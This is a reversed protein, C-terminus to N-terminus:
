KGTHYYKWIFWAIGSIDGPRFVPRETKLGEDDTVVALYAEAKDPLGKGSEKRVIGIRPLYEQKFGEILIQDAGAAYQLAAEFVVKDPHQDPPATQQLFYKRRDDPFASVYMGERSCLIVQDAGAERFKWSDKGPEDSFLGAAPGAPMNDAPKLKLGHADHKIVAIRFTERGEMRAIEKLAPILKVLLTTKGSGSWGTLGLVSSKRDM